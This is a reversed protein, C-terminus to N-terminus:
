PRAITVKKPQRASEKVTQKPAAVVSIARSWTGAARRESAAKPSSATRSGEQMQHTRSHRGFSNAGAVSHVPVGSRKGEKAQRYHGRRECAPGPPQRRKERRWVAAQKGTNLAGQLVEAVTLSGTHDQSGCEFM